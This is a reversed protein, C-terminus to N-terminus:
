SPDSVVRLLTRWLWGTCGWSKPWWSCIRLDPACLDIWVVASAEALHESVEDLPFDEDTLVGERYCRTRPM